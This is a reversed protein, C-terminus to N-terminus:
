GAKPLTFYFTAGKGKESEVWVEGGHNKIIREVIVLGIGTGEEDDIEKLRHFIEFIKGHYRPDIGIGNDKVYFRHFEGKEEYGIEIRPKERDGMFKMANVLLNEFVQYIRDGDCRITPLNDGISVEIRNKELRPKLHNCVRNAIELSSIDKFASVARGLRSLALLDSILVEMRHTNATIRKVYRKGEEGLKDQYDKLLASSFGQLSILPSKLDHSVVYVFNELEENKKMLEEEAEALRSVDRVFGLTGIVKGQSDKLLSGSVSIPIENGQKAFLRLRYSKLAQGSTLIGMMDKARERGKDYLESVHRGILEEEKYGAIREIARNVFTIIGSEDTTVVIDVSTKFITDMFDRSKRIEERLKARETIDEIILILTAEEEEEEEAVRIGTVTFNLRKEPHHTSTHRVDDLRFPERTEMVEEFAQLLGGEKLLHGPFVEKINRGVVDEHKVRGIELYTRNVSKIKLNKDLVLLSSPISAVIKENYEKFYRLTEEAQMRETIDIEHGMIAPRGRYTIPDSVMIEHWVAEGDKKLRKIEYRRPVEEGKLRKDARQRIIERQDPHILDLHNRGLLEEPEYGHMEAFRDNVFVYKSDQHIFVGTLSSDALTRYKEESERLEEEARKKETIDRMVGLTAIEGNVETLSADLEICIETGDRRIMWFDYIQPLKEGRQRRRYREEILQRDRPAIFELFPTSTLEEITYGVMESMKKNAFVYYEGSVLVIGANAHEILHRYREESEKIKKELHVRETIDRVIGRFGIPNGEADKMLSASAEAHGKSGDRRAIEWEYGKVPIGTTYVRNYVKYVRKATAPDMYDRNNMGMLEDRSYGRIECMADNFFTFNGALDVEYYGESINELITRYKEESEQLAIEAMKQATYDTIIEISGILRGEQDYFPFATNYRWMERGDKDYSKLVAKHPKEDKFVEIVPCDECINDRKKFFRYCPETFMEPRDGFLDKATQNAYITKMEPTIIVITDRISSLIQAQEHLAEEARKRETTDRMISRLEVVHGDRDLVRTSEIMVNITRGEKTILEREIGAIKKRKIIKPFEKQFDERSKESYFRSVSQGVIERKSYGTKRVWAQNCETIVGEEDLTHYMDPANDYLGRYREEVHMFDWFLRASVHDMVKVRPPRTKLIEQLVEDSGTVEIILDLDDVGYFDSYDSTLYIGLGKAYVAGPSGPNRSAVGLINMKLESFRDCLILEMIAKCGAGGGVFAVNLRKDTEKM